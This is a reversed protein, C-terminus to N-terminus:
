APAGGNQYVMADIVDEDEMELEDPTQSGSIRSGDFLFVFTDFHTALKDCYGDMLSQLPSSRKIRFLVENGVQNQVRLSIFSSHLQPKKDEEQNPTSM